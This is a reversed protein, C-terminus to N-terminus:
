AEVMLLLSWLRHKGLQLMHRPFPPWHWCVHHLERVVFAGGVARRSVAAFATGDGVVTSVEDTFLAEDRRCLRAEM